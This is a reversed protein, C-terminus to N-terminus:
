LLPCYGSEREQKKLEHLYSAQLRIQMLRYPLYPVKSQLSVAFLQLNKTVTILAPTNMLIVFARLSKQTLRNLKNGPM